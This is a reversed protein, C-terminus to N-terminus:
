SKRKMGKVASRLSKPLCFQMLIAPVLIAAVVRGLTSGGSWLRLALPGLASVMLIILTREVGLSEVSFLLGLLIAIIGVSLDRASKKM